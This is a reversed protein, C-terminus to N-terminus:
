CTETWREDIEITKCIVPRIPDGTLEGPNRQPPQGGGGGDGGTEAEQSV